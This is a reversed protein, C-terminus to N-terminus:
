LEKEVNNERKLVRIQLSWGSYGGQVGFKQILQKILDRQIAQSDGKRPEM